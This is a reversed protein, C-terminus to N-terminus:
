KVATQWQDLFAQFRDCFAFTAQSLLAGEATILAITRSLPEPLPRIQIDAPIPEAALRAVVAAGLGQQVMSVLTSDQQVEYAVNLTCGFQALHDVVSRAHRHPAALPTMIMPLAALQEWTLPADDSLSNPPFLVLFDDQFERQVELGDGIPLVTFGMDAQGDRVEQEVNSYYAHETIVINVQPFDERFQAIVRPLLHTAVSRPTAIRVEGGELGRNRNATHHLRDLLRLIQQADPLMEKGCATLTAGHRGRNLLVVGLTEELAAIAYSVTSQTVGMELAAEGFNQHQAIAVFARLQSLKIRSDAVSGM